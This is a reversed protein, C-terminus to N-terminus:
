VSYITPLTLHTYSVTEYVYRDPDPQEDFTEDSSRTVVRVSPIAHPAEPIRLHGEEGEIQVFNDGWTDKAGACSCVFGDYRLLLVGSTDVGSAHRNPLYEADLPPGFLAICFYADYFTIDQLCGGAHALSFVNPTEGAILLGYRSSLQSFNALVLKVRGLRPLQARVVDFNPQYETTVADILYLGKEKALRVLAEAESRRPTMPKECIVHKGHELAMRAHEFHLDNPSAVYVFDVDLDDLLGEPRAHVTAVGFEDALARGTAEARSCVATCRVGETASIARLMWHVIPGTGITGIRLESM